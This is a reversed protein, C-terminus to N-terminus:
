EDGDHKNKIMIVAVGAAAVALVGGAAAAVAGHSPRAPYPEEEASTPEETATPEETTSETETTPPATVVRTIENGYQDTVPVNLNPLNGNPLAGTYTDEPHDPNIQFPQTTRSTKKTTTTRTTTTTEDEGDPPPYDDGDDSEDSYAPEDPITDPEARAATAMATLMGLVLLVALIWNRRRM